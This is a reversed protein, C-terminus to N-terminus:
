IPTGASGLQLPGFTRRDPAAPDAEGSDASERDARVLDDNRARLSSPSSNARMRSAPVTVVVGSGVGVGFGVGVGVAVGFGVGVGVAWARLGGQPRRGFAVGFAVGLGVGFGVGLGLARVVFGLGSGVGFATALGVGVGSGVSSGAVPVGVSVGVFGVPAAGLSPPRGRGAVPRDPEDDGRSDAASGTADIASAPGVSRGM